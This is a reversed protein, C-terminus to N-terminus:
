GVNLIRLKNLSSISTPLEEIINNFLNLIELNVLNAIAPPVITLRNHPLSLRTIHEMSVTIFYINDVNIVVEKLNQKWLM